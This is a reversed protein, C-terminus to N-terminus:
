PKTWPPQTFLGGDVWITQGTVFEMERSAVMVVARAVDEPKGVRRLPTLRAFTGAYDPLELKTREIEIAGPAICNVRIRHPGLEVAAVKTFMEIGGKSATYSSLNPFPVRNSGSGINVINGGGHAKMHRGAARTCLFCGKLNTDIVRDWDSEELELLPQETQVGANNVMLTLTGFRAVVDQVMRDVDAAVRVDGQVAMGEVGIRRLEEVVEEAADPADFYNVAVHCGELALQRCIGQGVGGSGGTVIAVDGKLKGEVLMRIDKDLFLLRGAVPLDEARAHRLRPTAGASGGAPSLCVHPVERSTASGAVNRDRRQM